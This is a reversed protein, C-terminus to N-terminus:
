RSLKYQKAREKLENINMPIAYKQKNGNGYYNDPHNWSTKNFEGQVVHAVDTEPWTYKTIGFPYVAFPFADLDPIEKKCTEIARRQNYAVTAVVASQINHHEICSAINKFNKGTNTSRTETWIIREKKVGCEKLLISRMNKAEKRPIWFESGKPISLNLHPSKKDTERLARHVWPEFVYNGGSIIINKIPNSAKEACKLFEGSQRAISPSVSKAGLIILADVNYIEEFDFLLHKTIAQPKM